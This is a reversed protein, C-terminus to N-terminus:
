QPSLVKGCHVFLDYFFLRIKVLNNKSLLIDLFTLDLQLSLKLCLPCGKDALHLLQCLLVKHDFLVLAFPDLVGLGLECLDLHSLLLHLFIHVILQLLM